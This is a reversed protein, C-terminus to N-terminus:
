VNNDQSISQGDQAASLPLLYFVKAEVVQTNTGADSLQFALDFDSASSNLNAVACATIYTADAPVTVAEVGLIIPAADSPGGHVIDAM